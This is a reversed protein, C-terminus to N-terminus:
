WTFGEVKPPQFKLRARNLQAQELKKRQLTRELDIRQTPNNEKSIRFGLSIIEKNIGEQKLILTAIKDAKNNAM